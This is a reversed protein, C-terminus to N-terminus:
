TSEANAITTPRLLPTVQGTFPGVRDLSEASDARMLPHSGSGSAAKGSSTPSSRLVHSILSQGLEQALSNPNSRKSRMAQLRMARLHKLAAQLLQIMLRNLEILVRLLFPTM